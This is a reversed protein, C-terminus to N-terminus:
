IKKRTGVKELSIRHYLLINYDIIKTKHIHIVKKQHTGKPSWESAHFTDIIASIIHLLSHICCGMGFMRTHVIHYRQIIRQNTEWWVMM